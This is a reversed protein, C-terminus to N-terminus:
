DGKQSIESNKESNTLGTGHLLSQCPHPSWGSTSNHLKASNGNVNPRLAGLRSDRECKADQTVTRGGLVPIPPRPGGLTLSARASSLLM